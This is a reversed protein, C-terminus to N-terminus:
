CALRRRMEVMPAGTLEHERPEGHTEFGESEYLHIAAVNDIRVHLMASSCDARTAADVADRLLSRGLGLTSAGPDVALLEIYATYGADPRQREGTDASSDSLRNTLAFARPELQSGVVAFRIPTYDFKEATRTAVAAPPAIGDRSAVARM